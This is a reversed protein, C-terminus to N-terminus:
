LPNILDFYAVHGDPEKLRVPNLAMGIADALEEYMSGDGNESGLYVASTPLDDFRTYTKM